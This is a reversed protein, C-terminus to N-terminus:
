KKLSRELFKCKAECVSEIYKLSCILKLVFKFLSVVQVLLIFHKCIFYITHLDSCTVNFCLMTEILLMIHCIDTFLIYLLEVFNTRFYLITTRKLEEM